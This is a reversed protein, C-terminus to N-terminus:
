ITSRVYAMPRIVVNRGDDRHLRPPMSRLQGSFFLNLMLTELSTTSTTASRSRPPAWSAGRPRLARRASAALLALLADHARARAEGRRRSAHGRCGDPVRGRARALHAPIRDTDYDPWGQDLNVAILTSASRPFRRLLLLADLLAYSDKGGSICVMIRDGEAILNWDGVAEGVKRM